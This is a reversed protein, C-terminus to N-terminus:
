TVRILMEVKYVGDDFTYKKGKPVMHEELLRKSPNDGFIFKMAHQIFIATLSMGVVGHLARCAAGGWVTSM